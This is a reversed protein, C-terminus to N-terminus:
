EEILDLLRNINVNVGNALASKVASSIIEAAEQPLGCKSLAVELRDAKDVTWSIMMGRKCAQTPVTSFALPPLDGKVHM